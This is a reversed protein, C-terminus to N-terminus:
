YQFQPKYTSLLSLQPVAHSLVPHICCHVDKDDHHNLNAVVYFNVSFYPTSTVNYIYIRASSPEFRSHSMM